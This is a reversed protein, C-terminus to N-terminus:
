ERKNEIDETTSFNLTKDHLSRTNKFIVILYCIHFVQCRSLCMNPEGDTAGDLAVGTARLPLFHATSAGLLLNMFLTAIGGKLTTQIKILFHIKQFSFCKPHFFCLGQHSLLLSNVQLEPSPKIGPNPLDGTSPFPLGSWYEQRSFGMSSSGPLSCNM